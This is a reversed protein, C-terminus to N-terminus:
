VEVGHDELGGDDDDNSCTTKLLDGIKPTEPGIRIVIFGVRHLHYFLSNITWDSILIEAMKNGVPEPFFMPFAGFPTGGTGGPSFEGNLEITYDNYTAYSQLLQVTLYINSLKSFDLSQLIVLLFSLPNQQPSSPCSACPNPANPDPFIVHNPSPAYARARMRQIATNYSTGNLNTARRSRSRTVNRNVHQLNSGSSVFAPSHIVQSNHSPPLLRPQVHPQMRGSDRHQLPARPGTADLPRQKPLATENKWVFKPTGGGNNLISVNYRTNQGRSQNLPNLPQVSPVVSYRNTAPRHPHSTETLIPVRTASALTYSIRPPHTLTSRDEPPPLILPQGILKPAAAAAAKNCSSSSCQGGKGGGGLINELGFGTLAIQLLQTLAISQPIASLQGNLKENVISPVQECIKGPLMSRVM